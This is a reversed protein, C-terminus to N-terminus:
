ITDGVSFLDGYEKRLSIVQYYGDKDKLYFNYFNITGLSDPEIKLIECDKYKNIDNYVVLNCSTILILMLLIFIIKRM